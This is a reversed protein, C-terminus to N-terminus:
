CMGGVDSSIGAKTSAKPLSGEMLMYLGFARSSSIEVNEMEVV